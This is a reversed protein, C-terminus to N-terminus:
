VGNSIEEIEEIEYQMWFINEDKLLRYEFYDSSKEDVYLRWKAVELEDGEHYPEYEETEPIYDRLRIRYMGVLEAKLM